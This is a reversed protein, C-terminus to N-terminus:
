LVVPALKERAVWGKQGATNKVFVFDNHRKLPKVLEGERLSALDGADAFPSVKLPADNTMVVQRDAREGQALAGGISLALALGSVTVAGHFWRHPCKEADGFNLWAGRLFVALMALLLAAGGLWAWTDRGFVLLPRQWWAVAPEPLGQAQRLAALNAAVDAANPELLLARQYGLVAKGVEGHLYYANGLNYYVSASLSGNQLLHEYLRIAEDYKQVACAQNAADFDSASPRAASLSVAASLSLIVLLGGQCLKIKM